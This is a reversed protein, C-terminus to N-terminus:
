AAAQKKAALIFASSTVMDQATINQFRKALKDTTLSSNQKVTQIHIIEFGTDALLKKHTSLPERNILYPRRGRILKWELDSYTWHGNWLAACDHCKFDIQHSMHGEPKLWIHMTRYTDKLEDVHELVAQSYVIDVSEPNIVAPDYWPVKYSILSEPSSISHISRRIKELRIKELAKAMRSKNFISEPFAYSELRPKLRPFENEDPIPTKNKFLEILEEFVKINRETNAHKVMDFAFYKECGSILAALGIGLSAGPGLEAVVGPNANLGHNHANILHRAWVSYCYRANDTAGAKKPADPHAGPLYTALGNLILKLKM